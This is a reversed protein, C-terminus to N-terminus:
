PLRRLNREHFLNDKVGTDVEIKDFILETTHEKQVNRVFMRVPLTYGGVEQAEVTREKLLNGARDFYHEKIILADSQRVWSVIKSYSSRLEPRPVNELVWYAVGDITEEGQLLYTYDNLDRSTMDEYSLDSGMFSDGQKSSSIRRIKKFSPLWMRMEDDGDAHEISLFAIGRDDAPALFWIIQKAEGLRVSHVTLTRSAGSRATLTMTLDTTMDKPESRQDIMSAIDDGTQGALAIPLLTALILLQLTPQRPMTKDKWQIGNM